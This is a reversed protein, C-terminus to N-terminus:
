YRADTLLWDAPTTPWVKVLAHMEDGRLNNDSLDLSRAAHLLLSIARLATPRHGGLKARLELAADTKSLGCAQLLGHGFMRGMESGHRLTNGWWASWRWPEAARPILRQGNCLARATFFEQFSLHSSQMELPSASLLSLLPLRDQRVRERIGQMADQWEQPLEGIAKFVETQMRRHETMSMPRSLQNRLGVEKPPGVGVSARARGWLVAGKESSRAKNLSATPRPGDVTSARARARSQTSDPSSLHSSSDLNPLHSAHHRIEQWPQAFRHSSSAVSRRNLAMIRDLEAPQVLGIAAIAVHVETIIRKEAAHAQFFTAELLERMQKGGAAHRTKEGRDKRELQDLMASAAVDYLETITRPMSIGKEVGDSGGVQAAEAVGVGLTHTNAQKGPKGIQEDKSAQRSMLISIVRSLMLPNGTVRHGTDQDIPVTTKVYEILRQAATLGLVQECEAHLGLGRSRAM